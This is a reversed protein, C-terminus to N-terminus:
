FVVLMFIGFVVFMIMSGFGFESLSIKSLFQLAKDALCQSSDMVETHHFWMTALRIHFPEVEPPCVHVYLSSRPCPRMSLFSCVNECFSGREREIASAMQLTRERM